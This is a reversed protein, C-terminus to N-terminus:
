LSLQLLWPIKKQRKLLCICLAQRWPAKKGGKLLCKCLAQLLPRSCFFVLFDKLTTTLRCTQLYSQPGPDEPDGRAADVQNCVCFSRHATQAEPETCQRTVTLQMLVDAAALVVTKTGVADAL